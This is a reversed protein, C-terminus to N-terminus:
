LPFARWFAFALFPPPLPCALPLCLFEFFVFFFRVLLLRSYLGVFATLPSLSFIAASLLRLLCFLRVGPSSLRSSAALSFFSCLPFFLYAGHRPVLSSPSLALSAGFHRLSRRSHVCLCPSVVLPCLGPLCSFVCLPHLLCTHVVVPPFGPPPQSWFTPWFVLLPSAFVSPPLSSLSFSAHPCGLFSSGVALSTVCRFAFSHTSLVDFSLRGSLRPHHLCFFGVLLRPDLSVRVNSPTSPSRLCAPALFSPSPSLFCFSVGLRTHSPLSACGFPINWGPTVSALLLGCTPPSCSSAFVPLTSIGM